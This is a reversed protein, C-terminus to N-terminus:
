MKLLETLAKARIQAFRGNYAKTVFPKEAVDELWIMMAASMSIDEYDNYIEVIESLDKAALMRDSESFNYLPNKVVELMRIYLNVNETFEEALTKDFAQVGNNKKRSYNYKRIAQVVDTEVNMNCIMPASDIYRYTNTAISGTYLLGKASLYLQTEIRCDNSISIATDPMQRHTTTEFVGLEVAKGTRLPNAGTMQKMVAIAKGQFAKNCMSFFRNGGNNTHYRDCSVGIEICPDKRKKPIYREMDLILSIFEDPVSLGNTVLSVRGLSINNARITRFIYEMTSVNLLPEGGTFCLETISKVQGLLNDVANTNLETPEADGRFCHKCPPKMNCKRTVEIALSCLELKEIDKM